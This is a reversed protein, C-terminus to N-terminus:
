SPPQTLREITPDPVWPYLFSPLGAPQHFRTGKEMDCVAVKVVTFYSQDIRSYMWGWFYCNYVVMANTSLGPVGGKARGM